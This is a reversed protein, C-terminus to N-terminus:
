GMRKVEIVWIVRWEVRAVQGLRPLSIRVNTTKDITDESPNARALQVRNGHVTM